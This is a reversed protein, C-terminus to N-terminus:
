VINKFKLLIDNDHSLLFRKLIWVRLCILKFVLHSVGCEFYVVWIGQRSRVEEM